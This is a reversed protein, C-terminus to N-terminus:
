ANSGGDFEAMAARQVLLQEAESRWRTWLPYKRGRVFDECREGPITEMARWAAMTSMGSQFAVLGDPCFGYHECLIHALRDVDELCPFRGETRLNDDQEEAAPAATFPWM